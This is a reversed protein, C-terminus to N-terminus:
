QNQLSKVIFYDITTRTDNSSLLADLISEPIATQLKPTSLATRIVTLSFFDIEAKSLNFHKEHNILLETCRQLLINFRAEWEGDCTCIIILSFLALGSSTATSQVGDLVTEYATELAQDIYENNGNIQLALISAVAQFLNSVDDPVYAHSTKWILKNILEKCFVPFTFQNTWATWVTIISLVDDNTLRHIRSIIDFQDLLVPSALDLTEPKPATMIIEYDPKSCATLYARSPPTVRILLQTFMIQIVPVDPLHEYQLIEIFARPKESRLGTLIFSLYHLRKNQARLPTTEDNNLINLMELMEAFYTNKYPPPNIPQAEKPNLFQKLFLSLNNEYQNEAFKIIEQRLNNWGLGWARRLLTLGLYWYSFFENIDTTVKVTLAANFVVQLFDLFRHQMLLLLLFDQSRQTLQRALDADLNDFSHIKQIVRNVLTSSFSPYRVSQDIFQRNNQDNLGQMPQSILQQLLLDYDTSTNLFDCNERDEQENISDNMIKPKIKDFLNRLNEESYDVNCIDSNDSIKMFIRVLLNTILYALELTPHSLFTTVCHLYLHSFTNTDLFSLASPVTNNITLNSIVIVALQHKSFLFSSVKPQGLLAHKLLIMPFPLTQPILPNDPILDHIAVGIEHIEEPFHLRASSTLICFFPSESLKTIANIALIKDSSNVCANLANKACETSIISSIDFNDFLENGKEALLLLIGNSNHNAIHLFIEQCTQTDEFLAHLFEIFLKSPQDNEGCIDLLCHAVNIRDSIGSLGSIFEEKTVNQNWANRIYDM